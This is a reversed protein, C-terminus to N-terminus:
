VGPQIYINGTGSISIVGVWVGGNRIGLNPNVYTTEGTRIAIVPQSNGTGPTPHNINAVAAQTTGFAVFCLNGSANDIKYLTSLDTGQSGLSVNSATATFPVAFTNSSPTFTVQAM